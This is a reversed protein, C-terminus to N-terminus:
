STTESSVVTAPELRHLETLREMMEQADHVRDITEVSANAVDITRIRAPEGLCM